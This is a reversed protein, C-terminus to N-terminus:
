TKLYIPLLEFITKTFNMKLILIQHRMKQKMMSQKTKM